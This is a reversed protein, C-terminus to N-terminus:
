APTKYAGQKQDRHGLPELHRPGGTRWVGSDFLEQLSILDLTHLLCGRRRILPTKNVGLAFFDASLSKTFDTQRHYCVAFRLLLSPVHHISNIMPAPATPLPTIRRACTSRSDTGSSYPANTIVTNRGHYRAWVARASPMKGQAPPAQPAKRPPSASELLAPSSRTLLTQM